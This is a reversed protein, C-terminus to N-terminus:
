WICFLKFVFKTFWTKGFNIIKKRQKVNLVYSVTLMMIPFFDKQHLIPNWSIHEFPQWHEQWSRCFNDPQYYPSFKMLIVNPVFQLHSFIPLHFKLIQIAVNLTWFFWLFMWCIYLNSYLVFISFPLLGLVQYLCFFFCFSDLSFNRM